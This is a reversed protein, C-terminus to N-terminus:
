LGKKHMDALKSVWYGVGVKDLKNINEESQLGQVAWMAEELEKWTDGNGRKELFTASRQTFTGHVVSTAALKLLQSTNM